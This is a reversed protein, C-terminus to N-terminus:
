AWRFLVILVFLLLCTGGVGRLLSRRVSLYIARGVFYVGWVCWALRFSERGVLWVICCDREVCLVGLMKNSM